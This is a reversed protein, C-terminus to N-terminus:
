GAKKEHEARWAALCAPCLKTKTKLIAINVLDPSEGALDKGCGKAPEQGEPLSRAPTGCTIGSAAPAPEVPTDQTTGVEKEEAGQPESVVQGGLTQEVTQVAAEMDPEPAEEPREDVDDIPVDTAVSTEGVPATGPQETPPAAEAGAEREAVESPSEGQVTVEAKAREAPKVGVPISGKMSQQAPEARAQEASLRRAATKAPVKRAGVPGGPPMAVEPEAPRELEEM